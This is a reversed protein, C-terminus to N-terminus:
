VGYLEMANESTQKAVESLTIGKIEAVKEGIYRIFAPENRKGRMPVPAM